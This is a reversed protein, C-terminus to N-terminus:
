NYSTGIFSPKQEADIRYWYKHINIDTNTKRAKFVPNFKNPHNLLNCIRPKWIKLTSFQWLISAKSTETLTSLYNLVTNSPHSVGSSSNQKGHDENLHYQMESLLICTGNPKLCQMCKTRWEHNENLFIM